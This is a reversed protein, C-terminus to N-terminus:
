GCGESPDAGVVKGTLTRTDSLMVKISTTNKIVQNNTLIYGDARVLVGSGLAHERQERPIQFQNGFFQRFFPDMLFPSM